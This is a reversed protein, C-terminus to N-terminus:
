PRLVGRCYVPWVAKLRKAATDRSGYIAEALVGDLVTVYALAAEHAGGPHLRVANEKRQLLRTLSREAQEFFPNVLGMVEDHLSRPPFYSMRLLFRTEADSEYEDMLHEALDYLNDEFPRNAGHLVQRFLVQQKRRLTRKFVSLFLDEKSRFHAYISPKRIGVSDAIRGLSAGEFGESAFLALAADEIAPKRTM